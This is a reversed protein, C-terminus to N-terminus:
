WSSSSGGGGFSGGGGRPTKGEGDRDNANRGIGDSSSPEREQGGLAARVEDVLSVDTVASWILAAGLAGLTLGIATIM